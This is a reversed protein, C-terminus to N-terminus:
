EQLFSSILQLNKAAGTSDTLQMSCDMVCFDVNMPLEVKSLLGDRARRAHLGSDDLAADIKM